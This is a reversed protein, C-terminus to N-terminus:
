EAAVAPLMQRAVSQWEPLRGTLGLARFFELDLGHVTEPARIDPLRIFAEAAHIVALTGLERIPCLSPTHHHTIANVIEQDYGWLGVLYAGVHPHSATFLNREADLAAEGDDDNLSTMVQPYREPESAAMVL